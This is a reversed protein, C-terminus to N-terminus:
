VLVSCKKIVLSEESKDAQLIDATHVEGDLCGSGSFVFAGMPAIIFLYNGHSWPWTGNQGIRNTKGVMTIVRM